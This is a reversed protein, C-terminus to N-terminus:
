RIFTAKAIKGNRVEYIAIINYTKGNALISEVDVVTNGFVKRNEITSKLDKTNEFFGKYTEILAEKGKALPSDPFNYLEVDESFVAAFAEIDRANYADLQNQVYYAASVESM